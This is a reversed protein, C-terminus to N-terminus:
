FGINLGFTYIRPAPYQGNDYANLLISGGVEPDYGSYKTFTYANQVNAYVRLHNIQYKQLWKQPLNYGISINKIRLYSGDEIFKSSIRNNVNADDNTIRPIMKGQNIVYVNSLTSNANPINPDIVGIQAYDRVDRLLGFNGNPMENSQRLGSYIDFGQAGQLDLTMDFNKYTFTNTFGYMFDPNPDGIYTRDNEDIIGDPVGDPGSIDKWKIDGAWIGNVAITKNEPLAVQVTNGDKDKTYFDAESVFLGEAVYGYFRGIPGGVETKSLINSGSQGYLVSSASNLGKVTGRNLSFTIGSRWRFDHADINVSNLTLEFGKNQINGINVYPRELTGPSGGPNDSTGSYAPLPVQIILNSTNKVYADAILEVRNEFLNLDIGVNYSGTTEWQIGSNAINEALFGTGSPTQVPKLTSIYQNGPMNQNGLEGWGLRLKLNNIAQINKMFSENSIRWALALSPYYGWKNDPGFKSSGDARYTFTLLYRDDFSYNFRGFFSEMASDNQDSNAVSSKEDGANLGHITNLPFNNRTGSLNEWTSEQAEHALMASLHHKHIYKDYYLLNKILWWFSNDATRRGTNVNSTYYGYEQTPKFYYNNGYNLNTGAENRFTLGPLITIDIYANATLQARKNKNEIRMADAIPNTAYAAYINKETSGGWNGNADKVPVDPTQRIANYIIDNNSTTVKENALSFMVDAGIKLWKRTENDINIRGSFRNFGSGLAIGDQNFYAGSIYFKTKENGGTISLQNNSMPATSFLEDQWNTGDGLISPDAFEERAGYGVIAARDNQYTAYERLNLTELKKSIQQIGYYGDYSIKTKGSEGRKTTILVVGNAGQSGYIASASADKLVEISVIDSPNITSLPNSTGSGSFQMGDIVYLPEASTNLSNTGRIRVSIGGGPQGSNQIVQVGAIKGSLVQDVTTAVTRGVDKATLSAVSGTLDSRKMQGYGIAVVENLQLANEQMSIELHKNDTITVEKTLFSIFSCVLTEGVSANISFNGNLDTITGHNSGRIIVSVGVLPLDDVASVITGTIKLPPQNQAQIAPPYVLAIFFIFYMMGPLKRLILNKLYISM